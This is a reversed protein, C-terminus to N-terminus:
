VIRCVYALTSLSQQSVSPVTAHLIAHAPCKPHCCFACCLLWCFISSVQVHVSRITCRQRHPGDDFYAVDGSLLPKPGLVHKEHNANVQTSTVNLAARLRIMHNNIMDAKHLRAMLEASETMFEAILDSELRIDYSNNGDIRHNNNNETGALAASVHILQQAFLRAM